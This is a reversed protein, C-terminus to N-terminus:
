PMKVRITMRRGRRMIQATPNGGVMADIVTKKLDIGPSTLDTGGIKTLVDGNRFGFRHLDIGPASAVKYGITKNNNSVAEFKLSDLLQLANMNGTLGSAAVSSVPLSAAASNMESAREIGLRERDGNRDLLLYEEEPYIADITVGNTVEDGVGYSQQKRDSGEIIARGPSIFGKLKLNLDTDPADEGKDEQIPIDIIADRHFADFTLDVSQVAAQGGATPGAAVARPATWGSSPNALLIAAKAGFYCACAIAGFVAIRIPIDFKQGIQAM